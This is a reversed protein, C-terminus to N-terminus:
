FDRRQSSFVVASCLIGGFTKSIGPVEQNESPIGKNTCELTLNVRKVVTNCLSSM